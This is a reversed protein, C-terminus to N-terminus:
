GVSRAVLSLLVDKERDWNLQAHGLDWSRQREAALREGSELLLDLLRALSEPQQRSYVLHQLGHRAAFDRHASIDSLLPPVGALLYTYLKNTLALDRSRTEGTEAVLGLDHQAALREMDDPAQAPHFVIRCPAPSQAVLSQLHDAYGAVPTGRLHLVPRSRSLGIAAVAHELGRGPGIAQSFWYLSPGPEMNGRLNLAAPAQALPFVNQVVAPRAIGYTEAYAEAILPAAASVHRCRPLHRSEIDHVQRRLRDFAPDDPWDGPHFDEADYAFRVRHHHAAAAAAPLAAPYHAVYLDAPTALAARRLPATYASFGRGAFPAHGTLRHLGAWGTQVVRRAKWGVPSRLDIRQLTWGIRRMLSQDRPEVRDLVQTAIVTVRYGADHLADAEKVVRPNSGIQGPTVICVHTM